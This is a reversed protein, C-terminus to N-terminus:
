NFCSKVFEELKKLGKFGVLQGKKAKDAFVFFAPLVDTGSVELMEPHDDTSIKAFTLKYPNQKEMRDTAPESLKCIGCGKKWLKIFAKGDQDLHRKLDDPTWAEL